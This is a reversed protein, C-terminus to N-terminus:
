VCPLPSSGPHQHSHGGAASEAQKDSADGGQKVMTWFCAQYVTKFMGCQNAIYPADVVDERLLVLGLQQAVSRIEELSLEVSMDDGTSDAWHYLLPGLNIWHGGPRLVRSIIELYEIVNHATDIFFCTAVCDFAGASEDRSYVEVFDGACMSFFNPGPVLDCPPVDPVGVGRLQEADTRQNCASHMWPFITFQDPFAAENILFASTLLM